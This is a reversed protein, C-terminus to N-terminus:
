KSSITQRVQAIDSELRDLVSMLDEAPAIAKLVMLRVVTSVPLGQRAAYDTLQDFEAHTFRVQLNKARPHGRTLKVGPPLPADADNSEEASETSEAEQELLREIDSM